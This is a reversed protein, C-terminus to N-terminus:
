RVSEMVSLKYIDEIHETVFQRDKVEQDIVDQQHNIISRYYSSTVLQTQHQLYIDYGLVMCFISMILYVIGVNRNVIREKNPNSLRKM